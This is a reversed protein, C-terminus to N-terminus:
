VFGVEQRFLQKLDVDQAMKSRSRFSKATEVLRSGGSQSEKTQLPVQSASIQRHIPPSEPSM